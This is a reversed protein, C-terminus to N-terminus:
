DRRDSKSRRAWQAVVLLVSTVLVMMTSIAAIWLTWSLSSLWVGDPTERGTAAVPSWSIVGLGYGLGFQAAAAGASAGAALAVSGIWGLKAM